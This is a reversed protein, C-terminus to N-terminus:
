RHGGRTGARLRGRWTRRSRRLRHVPLVRPHARAPEGPAGPCPDGGRRSGLRQRQRRPRRRRPARARDALGFGRPSGRIGRGPHPPGLAEPTPGSGCRHDRVRGGPYRDVPAPLAPLPRRVDPRQPLQGPPLGPLCDTRGARPARHNRHREPQHPTGDRPHASPYGPRGRGHQASRRRDRPGRRGLAAQPDLDTRQSRTRTGRRLSARLNSLGPVRTARRRHRAKQPPRRGSRSRTARRPGDTPSPWDRGRAPAGV